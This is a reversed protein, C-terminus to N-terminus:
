ESPNNSVFSKTPEFETGLMAAGINGFAQMNGCKINATSM